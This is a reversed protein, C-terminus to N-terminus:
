STALRGPFITPCPRRKSSECLPTTVTDVLRTTLAINRDWLQRSILIPSYGPVLRTDAHPIPRVEAPTGDSRTGFSWGGTRCRSRMRIFDIHREDSVSDM